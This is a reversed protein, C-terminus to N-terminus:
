FVRVCHCLSIYLLSLGYSLVKSGVVAHSRDPFVPLLRFIGDPFDFQIIHFLGPFLANKQQESGANM